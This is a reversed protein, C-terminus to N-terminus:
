QGSLVACTLSDPVVCVRLCLRSAVAELSMLTLPLPPFFVHIVSRKGCVRLFRRGVAWSKGAEEEKGRGRGGCELAELIECVCGKERGSM